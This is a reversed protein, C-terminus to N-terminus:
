QMDKEGFDKFLTAKVVGGEPPLEKAVRIQLFESVLRIEEQDMVPAHSTLFANLYKINTIPIGKVPGSVKVYANTFCLVPKVPWEKERYQKLLDKISYAQSWVQNLFNKIPPKGNLLLTDKRATVQGKHSKTEIVFIGGPGIVIHDVNFGPFSVDHFGSYGDPLNEIVGAVKEEAEAGREADDARKKLHQAKKSLVDLCFWLIIILVIGAPGLKGISGLNFIWLLFVLLSLSGCIIVWMNRRQAMERTSKGATGIHLAM